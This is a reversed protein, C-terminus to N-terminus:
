AFGQSNKVLQRFRMLKLMKSHPFIRRYRLCSTGIAPVATQIVM